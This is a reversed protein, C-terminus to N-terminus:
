VSKYNMAADLGVSDFLAKLAGEGKAEMFAKLSLGETQGRVAEVVERHALNRNLNDHQLANISQRALRECAAVQEACDAHAAKSVGSPWPTNGGPRECVGCPEQLMEDDAAIDALIGALLPNVPTSTATATTAM